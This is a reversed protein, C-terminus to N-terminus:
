DWLQSLGEREQYKSDLSCELFLFHGKQPKTRESWSIPEFYCFDYLIVEKDAGNTQIETSLRKYTQTKKIWYIALPVTTSVFIKQTM